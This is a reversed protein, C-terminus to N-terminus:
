SVLIFVERHLSNLKVEKVITNFESRVAALTQMLEAPGLCDGAEGSKFASDIKANLNNIKTDTEEFAGALRVTAESLSM